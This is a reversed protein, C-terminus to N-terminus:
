KFIWSFYIFNLDKKIQWNFGIQPFSPSKRSIHISNVGHGVNWDFIGMYIEASKLKYSIKTKVYESWYGDADKSTDLYPLSKISSFSYLSHNIQGIFGLQIYDVLVSWTPNQFKFSLGAGFSTLPTKDYVWDSGNSSHLTFVIPKVELDDSFTLSIFFHFFFIYRKFHM